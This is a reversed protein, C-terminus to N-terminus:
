VLAIALWLGRGVKDKLVFRAYLAVLVPALYEILLAVGIQLRELALFYLLQVATLGALGFIVLYVIQRPNARLTAPRTALVGLLLLAFAGTVRTPSPQPATLPGDLLVKSMSGNLGWLTTAGIVLLTGQTRTVARLRAPRGASADPITADITRAA